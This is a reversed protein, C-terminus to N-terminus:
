EVDQTCCARLIMNIKLEDINKVSRKPTPLEVHNEPQKRKSATEVGKEVVSKEEEPKLASFYNNITVTCNNFTFTAM